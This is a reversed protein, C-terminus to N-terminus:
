QNVNRWRFRAYSINVATDQLFDMDFAFRLAADDAVDIFAADTANQRAHLSGKDINAQIFGGEQVGGINHRM